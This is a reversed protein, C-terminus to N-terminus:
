FSPTHIVFHILFAVVLPAHNTAVSVGSRLVFVPAVRPFGRDIRQQM